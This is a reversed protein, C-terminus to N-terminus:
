AKRRSVLLGILGLALLIFPSPEPVQSLQVRGSLADNGCSMTWHTDLLFDPTLGAINSLDFTFINYYSLEGGVLGSGEQFNGANAALLLSGGSMAYPASTGFYIDNNWSTVHYLGAADIGTGVGIGQSSIKANSNYGRTLNGFDIAYEYSSNNGDFSLALDGTYYQHGLFNQGNQSIIDFGTQLGISINNGQQKYYLYEADFNQGGYGPDVYYSSAPTDDNAVQTWGSFIPLTGATSFASTSLLTIASILTSFYKM